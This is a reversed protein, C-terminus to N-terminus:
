DRLGEQIGLRMREAFHNVRQLSRLRSAVAFAEKEQAIADDVQRRSDLFAREAKVVEEDREALTPRGKGILRFWDIM